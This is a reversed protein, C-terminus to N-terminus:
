TETEEVALDAATEEAVTETTAAFKISKIQDIAQTDLTAQLAPGGDMIAGGSQMHEAPNATTATEAGTGGTYRSLLQKQLQAVQTELERNRRSLAKDNMAVKSAMVKM